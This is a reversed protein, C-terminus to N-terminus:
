PRNVRFAYDAVPEQPQANNQGYLNILFDGSALKAAPIQTTLKARRPTLKGSRWIIQGNANRLEARYVAYENTELTLTVQAAATNPAIQLDRAAGNSRLTGPLLTVSALAPAPPKVAPTPAPSSVPTAVPRPAPTTRAVAPTPTPTPEPRSAPAPTPTAALAIQPGPEPARRQWLWWGGFVLLLAALGTAWVFKRGLLIDLWSPAVAVPAAVPKPMQALLQRTFAVKERRRATNLFSREFKERDAPALRERAYNEILEEEVACLRAFLDEDAVFREELAARAAENMEGLLFRRLNKEDAFDHM